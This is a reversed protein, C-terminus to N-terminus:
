SSSNSSSALKALEECCGTSSSFDEMVEREGGGGFRSRSVKGRRVTAGASGFDRGNSGSSTEGEM